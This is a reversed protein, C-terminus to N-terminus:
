IYLDMWLSSICPEEMASEAAVWAKLFLLQKHQSLFPIHLEDMMSLTSLTHVLSTLFTGQDDTM